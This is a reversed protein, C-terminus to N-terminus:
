YSILGGGFLIGKVVIEIEYVVLRYDSYYSRRRSEITRKIMEMEGARRVNVGLNGRILLYIAVITERLLVSM